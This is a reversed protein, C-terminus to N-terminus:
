GKNGGEGNLQTKVKKLELKRKKKFVMDPSYSRDFGFLGDNPKNIIIRLGIIM